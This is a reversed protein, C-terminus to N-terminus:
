ANLEGSPVQPSATRLKAEIMVRDFDARQDRIGFERVGIIGM